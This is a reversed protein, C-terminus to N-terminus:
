FLTGASNLGLPVKCYGNLVEDIIIQVADEGGKIKKLDKKAIRANEFKNLEKTNASKQNRIKM